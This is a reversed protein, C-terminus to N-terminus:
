WIKVRQEPPLYMGDGEAVDFADYFPDFNRLPGNARFRSPSHPDTLVQRRLAEDRSTDRWIQAFGLM